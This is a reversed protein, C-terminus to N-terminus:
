QERDARVFIGGVRFSVDVSLLEFAESVLVDLHSFFSDTAVRM